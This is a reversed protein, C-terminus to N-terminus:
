SVVALAERPGTSPKGAAAGLAPPRSRASAPSGGACIAACASATSPLRGASRRRAAHPRQGAAHPSRRSRRGRAPRGHHPARRRRSPCRPASRLRAARPTVRGTLADDLPDRARDGRHGRPDRDAGARPRDLQAEHAPLPEAAAGPARASGRPSRASPETSCIAIVPGRIAGELELQPRPLRGAARRRRDAGHRCESRTTRRSRSDPRDAAEARRRETERTQTLRQATAEAAALQMKLRESEARQQDLERITAQLRNASKRGEARTVDLDASTAALETRTTAAIDLESRLRGLESRLRRVETREDELAQEAAERKGHEREAAREAATM